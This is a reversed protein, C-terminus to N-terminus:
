KPRTDYRYRLAEMLEEAMEVTDGRPIATAVRVELHGRLAGEGVGTLASQVAKIQRLVDVGYADEQELVRVIGEPHGWAISLRHIAREHAGEPM